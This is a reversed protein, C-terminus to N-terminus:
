DQTIEFQKLYLNAYMGNKDILEQHTGEEVVQGHSIVIIKDCHIVTSLRHAIVLSTRNKM